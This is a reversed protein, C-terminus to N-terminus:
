ATPDALLSPAPLPIVEATTGKSTPAAMAKLVTTLRLWAGTAMAGNTSPRELM